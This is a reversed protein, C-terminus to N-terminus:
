ALGVKAMERRLAARFREDASPSPSTETARTASLDTVVHRVSNMSINYVAEDAHNNRRYLSRIRAASMTTM